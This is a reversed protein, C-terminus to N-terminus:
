KPEPRPTAQTMLLWAFLFVLKESSLPTAEEGDEDAPADIAQAPFLMDRGLFTTAVARNGEAYRERILRRTAASHLPADQLTAGSASGSLAILQKHYRRKDITPLPLRNIIRQFELVDRVLRENPHSSSYTCSEQEIGILNAFDRRVDFKGHADDPYTRVIIQDRGFIDAWRELRSAYDWLSEFDELSERFSGSYGLAKVLQNYWSEIADEQRRLYVVVVTRDPAHGLASLMDRVPEPEALWYFNESSLLLKCPSPCQEAEAIVAELLQTLSRPQSSAWEPYAGSSLFALDHHAHGREISGPYLIGCEILRERNECFFCQVATSGTKPTGIHLVCTASDIVKWNEQCSSPM